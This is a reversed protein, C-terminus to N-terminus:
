RKEMMEPSLYLVPRVGISGNFFGYTLTGDPRVGWVYSDNVTNASRLWWGAGLSLDEKSLLNRADEKSLLSVYEDSAIELICEKENENFASDYFDENLWERLESQEWDNSKSDFEMNCLIKESVAFISENDSKIVKWRVPQGNYNGLKIISGKQITKPAPIDNPAAATNIEENKLLDSLVDTIKSSIANEFVDLASDEVEFSSGLLMRVAEKIGISDSSIDVESVNETSNENNDSVYEWIKDDSIEVGLTKLIRRIFLYYQESLESALENNGSSKCWKVLSGNLYSHMLSSVDTKECLEELSKVEIGNKM